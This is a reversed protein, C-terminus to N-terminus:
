SISSRDIIIDVTSRMKLYSTDFRESVRPTFIKYMRVLM